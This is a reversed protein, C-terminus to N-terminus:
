YYLIIMPFLLAFLLFLIITALLSALIIVNNSWTIKQKKKLTCLLTLLGFGLLLAVIGHIFLFRLQTDFITLYPGQPGFCGPQNQCGAHWQIFSM